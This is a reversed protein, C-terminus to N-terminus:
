YNIDKTPTTCITHEECKWARGHTPLFPKKIKYSNKAVVSIYKRLKLLDNMVLEIQKEYYSKIVKEESGYRGWACIVTADEIKNITDSIYKRNHVLEDNYLLSEDYDKDDFKYRVNIENPNSGYCPFLNLIIVKKIMEKKGYRVKYRHLFRLIIDTTEDILLKSKESTSGQLSNSPNKMIVIVTKTSEKRDNYVFTVGYRIEDLTDPEHEILNIDIYNPLECPYKKPEM